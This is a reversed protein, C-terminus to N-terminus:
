RDATKGKKIEVYMEDLLPKPLKKLIQRKGGTIRTMGKTAFEKEGKEVREAEILEYLYYFEMYTVDKIGNKKIYMPITMSRTFKLFAKFRNCMINFDYRSHDEERVARVFNMFRAKRNNLDSKATAKKDIRKTTKGRGQQKVIFRM